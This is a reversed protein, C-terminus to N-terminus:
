ELETRKAEAVVAAAQVKARAIIVAADSKARDEHLRDWICIAYWVFALIGGATGVIVPMMPMFTGVTALIALVEATFRHHFDM